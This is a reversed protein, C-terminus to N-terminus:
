VPKSTDNIRITRYGLELLIKVTIEVHEPTGCYGSHEPTKSLSEGPKHPQWGEM